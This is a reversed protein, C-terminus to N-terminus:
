TPAAESESMYHVRKGMIVVVSILLYRAMRIDSLDFFLFPVFIVSLEMRRGDYLGIVSTRDKSEVERPALRM